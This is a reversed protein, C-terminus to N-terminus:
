VSVAAHLSPIPPAPLVPVLVPRVCPGSRLITAPISCDGRPAAAPHGLRRARTDSEATSTSSRLSRMEGDSSLGQQDPSDRVTVRRAGRQAAPKPRLPMAGCRGPLCQDPVARRMQRVVSSFFAIMDAAVPVRAEIEPLSYQNAVFVTAGPLGSRLRFLIAGLNQGYQTIVQTAFPVVTAPDPNTQIYHLIQLLDNGCVTLTM